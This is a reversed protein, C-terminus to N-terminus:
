LDGDRNFFEADWPTLEDGSYIQDLIFFEREHVAALFPEAGKMRRFASLGREIFDQLEGFGAAKAPGRALKATVYIVPHKVVEDLKSGAEEILQIQRVRQDYNDSERYARAYDSRKLKYGRQGLPVGMATLVDILRNDLLQSLAHLEVALSLSHMANESLVRVMIPYVREIDTDRQRFDRTGYLDNLFFRIAPQFRKDASFDSYTAALRSTQWRSLAEQEPTLGDSSVVDRRLERAKELHELFRAAGANPPKKM